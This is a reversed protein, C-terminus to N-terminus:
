MSSCSGCSRGNPGLMLAEGMFFFRGHDGLFSGGLDGWEAGLKLAEGLLEELLGLTLGQLSLDFCCYAYLCVFGRESGMLLSLGVGEVVIGFIAGVVWVFLGVVRSRGDISRSQMM